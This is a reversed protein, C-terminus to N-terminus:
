WPQSESWLMQWREEYVRAVDPYDRLVLVNEANSREAASTYNFSGTEVTQGDIVIFKDHMITYRYDLRVPVGAQAVSGAENRRATANSRDLVLEVDVGRDHARILAAAIPRSTFGYGALHASTVAQDIAAVVAETAGGRPSFAVTVSPEAWAQGALVLLAAVVLWM